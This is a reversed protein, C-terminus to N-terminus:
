APRARCYVDGSNAKHPLTRLYAAVETAPLWAPLALTMEDGLAVNFRTFGLGTVRDLCRRAAERAITTFEFSLAPLPRTLGALVAEEFGEVDIKVFAPVGHAAILRDLTTGPVEVEADWVEHAWGDAGAAAAIFRRSATSITPNASNLHLQVPAPHAGCAAAVVTVRPDDAYLARLARVCLPQPEVAVVRAGLRRFSGLRDGVHAGLDFVLDGPHVFRAYFADM